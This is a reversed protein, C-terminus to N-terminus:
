GEVVEMLMEEFHEIFAGHGYRKLATRRAGSGLREREEPQSLLSDLREALAGPDDPSVLYGDIGDTILEVTGAVETAVVPCGAAMAEQVSVPTDPEVSPHVFVDIGRLIRPIDSRFGLFHVSDVLGYTAVMEELKKLYHDTDFLPTGVLLLHLGPWRQVLRSFAEILVHQGKLPIIRGVNGVILPREGARSPVPLAAEPGSPSFRDQDLGNYLLRVKKSRHMDAAFQAGVSQGDVVVLHAWRRAAGNLADVYLGGLHTSNVVEQV